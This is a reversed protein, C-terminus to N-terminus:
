SANELEEDEFEDDTEMGVAQAANNQPNQAKTKFKIDLPLKFIDEISSNKGNEFFVRARKSESEFEPLVTVILQAPHKATYSTRTSSENWKSILSQAFAETKVFYWVISLGDRERYKSFIKAYRQTTKAHLELELAVTASKGNWVTASFIGDPIVPNEKNSRDHRFTQRKLSWETVFNEGLGIAELRLRLAALKVDHDVSSRNPRIMPVLNVEDKLVYEGKRTLLWVLEGTDLSRIRYIWGGSELRRIRRLVTSSQVGPFLKVAIQSTSLLGYTALNLFLKLDRKTMLISKKHGAINRKNNNM